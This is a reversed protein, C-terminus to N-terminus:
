ESEEEGDEPMRMTHTYPPGSGAEDDAGLIARLLDGSGPPFGPLHLSTVADDDCICESAQLYCFPCTGRRM